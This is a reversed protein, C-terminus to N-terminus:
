EQRTFRQVFHRKDQQISILYNGVPLSSIDIQYQNKIVLVMQGSANYLSVTFDSENPLEFSIESTAPNPYVTISETVVPNFVASPPNAANVSDVWQYARSLIANRDPFDITHGIGPMLTDEVFASYGMLSAHMPFFRSAPSDLEGHVLYFPRGQAYQLVDNVGDTGNIAAGIPIFGRLRNTNSLGYAYTVKGGVSFGMAYVKNPDINYWLEMSDLLASTFATDIPDDVAGDVGGDPCVLILQNFEAFDILTDCWAEADWRNTNFPHFGLMMANPTFSDYGSPLYISFKKAPDSQFPFNGDIREQAFLSITLMCALFFLVSKM